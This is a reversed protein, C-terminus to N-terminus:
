KIYYYSLPISCIKLTFHVCDLPHFWPDNRHAELPLFHSLHKLPQKGHGTPYDAQHKPRSNVIVERTSHITSWQYFGSPDAIVLTEYKCFM